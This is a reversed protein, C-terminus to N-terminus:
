QPQNGKFSFLSVELFNGLFHFDSLCPIIGELRANSNRSNRRDEQANIEREVTLLDGFSLLPIPKDLSEPVYGQIFSMIDIIGSTDNESKNLIGLCVKPLFQSYNQNILSMNISYVTGFIM